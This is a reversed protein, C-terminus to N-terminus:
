ASGDNVVDGEARLRSSQSIGLCRITCRRLLATFNVARVRPTLGCSGLALGQISSGCKSGDCWEGEYLRCGFVFQPVSGGLVQDPTFSSINSKFGPFLGYCTEMAPRIYKCTETWNPGTCMYMGDLKGKLQSGDRAELTDRVELVNRIKVPDFRPTSPDQRVDADRSLRPLHYKDRWRSNSPPYIAWYPHMPIALTMTCAWLASFIHLFHMTPSRNILLKAIYCQILDPLSSNYYNNHLLRHCTGTSNM